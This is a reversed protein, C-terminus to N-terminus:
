VNMRRDAAPHRWIIRGDRLTMLVQGSLSRGEFPTSRGMSIFHEPKVTEQAAPDLLVWDGTRWPRGLVGRAGLGLAHLVTEHPVRGDTATLSAAYATELGVVGFASSALGGAKEAEAHPAHDTAICDVTGDLLGALLADRDAASRLPPNMKFRGSDSTIDDECLLLHHPTVECTVPLGEHKARRILAVGEATSLHCIHYRCGTERVLALDREIQRWESENSIGAMGHAKAYGESVSGGCLLSEDECHAVIPLGLARARTMAERMREDSQVGRGDDSFGAVFRAMAELDSVEAGKQGRTIAGYPLVEVASFRAIRALQEELNEACDPVPSLNPMACVTTFGGRAAAFTGTEITEKQEFGPERLHVHLDCFAPAVVLGTADIVTAASSSRLGASAAILKGDGILLDARKLKGDLLATGGRIYKDM